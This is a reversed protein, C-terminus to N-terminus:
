RTGEDFQSRASAAAHSKEEVTHPEDLLVFGSGIWKSALAERVVIQGQFEGVGRVRFLTSSTVVFAGAVTGAPIGTWTVDDATGQIGDPGSRLRALQVAREMPIALAAALLAAPATNINIKGDGHTTSIATIPVPDADPATKIKIDLIAPGGMVWCLEGANQIPSNRARRRDQMVTEYDTTEAGNLRRADDGDQWDALADLWSDTQEPSVGADTLLRHWVPSPTKLWHIRGQEDQFELRYSGGALEFAKSRWTIPFPSADAKSEKSIRDMSALASDALLQAQFRRVEIATDGMRLAVQHSVMAVAFALILVAWLVVLLASGTHRSINRTVIKM